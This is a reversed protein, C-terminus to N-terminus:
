SGSLRRLKDVSHLRRYHSHIMCLFFDRLSQRKCKQPRRNPLCIPAVLTSSRCSIEPSPYTPDCNQTKTSRAYARPPYACAWLQDFSFPPVPTATPRIDSDTSQAVAPQGPKSHRKMILKRGVPPTFKVSSTAPEITIMVMVMLLNIM